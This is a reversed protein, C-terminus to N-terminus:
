CLRCFTSHFTVLPYHAGTSNWEYKRLTEEDLPSQSETNIRGLLESARAAAHGSMEGLDDVVGELLRDAHLAKREGDPFRDPGLGLQPVVM